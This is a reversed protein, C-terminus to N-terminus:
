PRLKKFPFATRLCLPLICCSRQLRWTNRFACSLCKTRTSSFVSYCAAHVDSFYLHHWLIYVICKVTVSATWTKQITEAARGTRGASRASLKSLAPPVPSPPPPSILLAFGTSYKKCSESFQSQARIQHSWISLHRIKWWCIPEWIDEQCWQWDARTSRAM